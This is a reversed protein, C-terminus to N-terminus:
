DLEGVDLGIPIPKPRECSTQMTVATGETQLGELVETVHCALEASARNKRQHEIACAMDLLGIGRMNKDPQRYVHPMERFKEWMQPRSLLGVADSNELGDIEDILEEGRILQIKGGFQNPDPVVLTGETGYIELKPLNSLWTDFSMNMNAVVGNQFRLIGAYHTPVEVNIYEGRRPKSYIMREKFGKTMFCGTQAVSGLLFVLATIYYPGMDMMPGGGYQYFFDPSAHWTEVGHNVMNATASIPRGIWGDDILKRCTQLASGLFSDPACGLMVKKEKSLAVLEKAEGATLALPKECYIHKGSLIAKKNIEYHVKPITLNLVIDVSEDQLLEDVTCVKEIKYQRATQKAKEESIDSCATVQLKKYYKNINTLYINSIVGCGILGVNLRDM